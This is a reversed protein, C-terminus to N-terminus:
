SIRRIQLEEIKQETETIRSNQAETSRKIDGVNNKMETMESHLLKEMEARM